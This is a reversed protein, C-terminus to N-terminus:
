AYTAETRGDRSGRAAAPRLDHQMEAATGAHAGKIGTSAHRDRHAERRQVPQGDRDTRALEIRADDEVEHSSSPM